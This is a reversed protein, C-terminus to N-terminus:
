STQPLRSRVFDRLEESLTEIPLTVFQNRAPFIMWFRPMEWVDVFSSWPLTASGLSSAITVDRDRFTFEGVPSTMARFKGVTHAFHSWWVLSFFLPVLILGTIAVGDAWSPGKHWGTILGIVTILIAALWLWWRRMASRWVFTRVAQRLMPETYIVRARYETSSM